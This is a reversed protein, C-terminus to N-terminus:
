VVYDNEGKRKKWASKLSSFGTTELRLTVKSRAGEPDNWEFEIPDKMKTDFEGRKSSFDRRM